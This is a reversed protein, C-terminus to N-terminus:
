PHDVVWRRYLNTAVFDTKDRDPAARNEKLVFYRLLAEITEVGTEDSMADRLMPATVALDLLRLWQRILQVSHDAREAATLGTQIERPVPVPHGLEDQLLAIYFGHVAALDLIERVPDQGM